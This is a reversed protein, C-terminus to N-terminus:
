MLAETLLSEYQVSGPLNAHQGGDVTVFKFNPLKLDLLKKPSEYPIVNDATGHIAYIPCKVKPLAKNTYFPYKAVLGVPFIPFRGQAVDVISYYPAELFLAKCNVEAALHAAVGTGLSRGYVVINEAPYDKLANDYFARAMKFLNAETLEGTSKGFQPYDMIICDYGKTTFEDAIWGIRQINGANGHFFLVLGKAKEPALFKVANINMSNGADLNFEKFPADFQYQYAGDLKPPHFLLKEQMFYLGVCAALYLTLLLIGFGAIIKKARM